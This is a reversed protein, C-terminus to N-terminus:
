LLTIQTDIDNGTHDCELSIIIESFLSGYSFAACGIKPKYGGRHLGAIAMKDNNIVKLIPSGSSGKKTECKYVM